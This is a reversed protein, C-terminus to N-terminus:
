RMQVRLTGPPEVGGDKKVIELEGEGNRIITFTEPDLNEKRLISDVKQNLVVAEANYHLVGQDYSAQVRVATDRAERLADELVSAEDLLVNERPASM